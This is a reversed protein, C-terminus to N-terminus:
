DIFKSLEDLIKQVFLNAHKNDNLHVEDKLWINEYNFSNDNLLIKSFNIHKINKKNRTINEVVDSVNFSYFPKEDSNKYFHKKYPFTVLIVKKIHTKESIKKLYEEITSSFYNIDEVSPKILHRELENWYCKRLNEKNKVLYSIIKKYIKKSSRKLNYTFKYNILQFSKKIRSNNNLYIRSLAYVQSYNFWGPGMFDTEQKISDLVGDKYVKNKKYRCIEDGIDIQNIYAIVIDPFIKFDDELVDLQLNMITPSHSGTGANVFVIQKNEGFQQILNLSFFNKTAPDSVTLQEMWSDGQFLVTLKRNEVDNMTTFLLDEVKSEKFLLSLYFEERVHHIKKSYKEHFNLNELSKFTYRFENNFNIFTYIFLVVYVIIASVFCSIIILYSNKM